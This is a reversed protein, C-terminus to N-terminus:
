CGIICMNEDEKEDKEDDIFPTHLSVSHYLINVLISSEKEVLFNKLKLLFTDYLSSEKYVNFKEALISNNPQHKCNEVMDDILITNELKELNLLRLDKDNGFIFLSNNNHDLHFINELKRNPKDEPLIINKIIFNAYIHNSKTWVSVKYRSFIFDLFEQVYPRLFVTFNNAMNNDDSYFVKKFNNFNHPIQEYFNISHILTMDLDLVIHFTM